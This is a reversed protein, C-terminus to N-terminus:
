ESTDTTSKVNIGNFGFQQLFEMHENWDVFDKGKTVKDKRFLAQNRKDTLFDAKFVSDSNHITREGTSKKLSYGLIHFSHNTPSEERLPDIGKSKFYDLVLEKLKPSDKDDGDLVSIGTDKLNIFWWSEKGLKREYEVSACAEKKSMLNKSWESYFAGNTTFAYKKTPSPSSIGLYEETLQKAESIPTDTSVTPLQRPKKTPRLLEPSDTLLKGVLYKKTAVVARGKHELMYEYCIDFCKVFDTIEDTYESLIERIFSIQIM